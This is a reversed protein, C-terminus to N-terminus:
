KYKRIAGLHAPFDLKLIFTYLHQCSITTKYEEFRIFIRVKRLPFNNNELIKM